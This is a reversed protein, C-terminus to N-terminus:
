ADRVSGRRLRITDRSRLTAVHETATPEEHSHISLVLPTTGLRASPLSNPVGNTAERLSGPIRPQAAKSKSLKNHRSANILITTCAHTLLHKVMARASLLGHPYSRWPVPM